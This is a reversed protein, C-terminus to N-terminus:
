TDNDFNRKNNKLKSLLVKEKDDLRKLFYGLHFGVHHKSKKHLREKINMEHIYDFLYGYEQVVTRRHQIDDYEDPFYKSYWIDYSKPPKGRKIGGDPSKLIVEDHPYIDSYYDELFSAGLSQSFLGREQPYRLLEGDLSSFYGVTDSGNGIIKKACYGAIYRASEFSFDQVLCRGRKWISSLLESSDLQFGSSTCDYERDPFDCNFLISHFHPRQHKTGYEGCAFYRIKSNKFQKRMRLRGIFKSFDKYVLMGYDPLSDEDYTLTIACNRPWMKAEHVCKISIQRIKEQRCGMCRTCPLFFSSGIGLEEKFVPVRKGNANVDRSRWAQIPYFCSM